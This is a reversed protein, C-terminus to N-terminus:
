NKKRSRKDGNRDPKAPKKDPAISFPVDEDTLCRIALNLDDNTATLAAVALPEDFGIAVIEAVKEQSVSRRKWENKRNNYEWVVVGRPKTYSEPVETGIITFETFPQSTLTSIHARPDFRAKEGRTLIFGPDL